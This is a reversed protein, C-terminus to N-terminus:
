RGNEVAAALTDQGLFAELASSVGEAMGGSGCVYIHCKPHRLLPLLLDANRPILDQACLVVCVHVCKKSHDKRFGQDKGAHQLEWQKCLM